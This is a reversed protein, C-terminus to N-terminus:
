EEYKGGYFKDWENLPKSNEKLKKNEASLQSVMNELALNKMISNRLYFEGDIKQQPEDDIIKTAFGYSLAQDATIWSENDMLEKIEDENLISSAKYAEITPQTIIELDDAAKRLQNANGSTYTWVNHIMLLSTKPMIREVGAMFIISAASCAFGDCVTTVKKNCDKLLNYIALGSSVIGGYSNIRIRLNPTDVKSLDVAFDYATVDSEIWKYDEINGYILLETTDQDVTSFQYWRKKM